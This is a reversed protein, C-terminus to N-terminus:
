IGQIAKPVADHVIGTYKISILVLGVYAVFDRGVFRIKTAAAHSGYSILDSVLFRDAWRHFSTGRPVISSTLECTRSPGATRRVALGGMSQEAEDEFGM